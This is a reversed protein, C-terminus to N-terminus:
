MLRGSTTFTIGAKGTLITIEQGEANTLFCLSTM